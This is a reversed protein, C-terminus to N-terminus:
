RAEGNRAPLTVVFHTGSGVTSEVRITGGVRDIVQRAIHLGLGTGEGKPKTTFFPEFIQARINEPVGPGNDWVTVMISNDHPCEAALGIEGGSSGALADAANLLLNLWVDELEGPVAYVMPMPKDPLHEVLRIGARYIHPRVLALTETITWHVDVNEYRDDPSSRVAALLRRVVASARKTSRV